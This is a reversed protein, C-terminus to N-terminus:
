YAENEDRSLLVLSCAVSTSKPAAEVYAVSTNIAVSFYTSVM